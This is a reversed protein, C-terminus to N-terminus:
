RLERPVSPDSSEVFSKYIDRIISDKRHLRNVLETIYYRTEPAVGDINELVFEVVVSDPAGKIAKELEDM